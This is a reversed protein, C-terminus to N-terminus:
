YIYIKKSESLLIIGYLKTFSRQGRSLVRGAPWSVLHSHLDASLSAFHEWSKFSVSGFRVSPSNLETENTAGNRQTSSGIPQVCNRKLLRKRHKPYTPLRYLYSVSTLFHRSLIFLLLNQQTRSGILQMCNEEVAEQSAESLDSMQTFLINVNFCTYGCHM